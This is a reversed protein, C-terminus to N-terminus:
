VDDEAVPQGSARLVPCRTGTLRLWSARQGAKTCLATFDM